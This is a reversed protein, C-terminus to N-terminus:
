NVLTGNFECETLVMHIVDADLKGQFMEQVNRLCEAPHIDEGIAFSNRIIEDPLTGDRSSRSHSPLCGDLDPGSRVSRKKRPM